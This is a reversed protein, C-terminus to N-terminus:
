AGEVEWESVDGHNAIEALAIMASKESGFVGHVSQEEGEDWGHQVLIWVKM